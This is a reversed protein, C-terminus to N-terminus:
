WTWLISAKTAYLFGSSFLAQIFSILATGLNSQKRSRKRTSRNWYQAFRPKLGKKILIDKMISFIALMCNRRLKEKDKTTKFSWVITITVWAFARKYLSHDREMRYFMRDARARWFQMLYDGQHLVWLTQWWELLEYLTISRAFLFFHCRMWGYNNSRNHVSLRQLLPCDCCDCLFTNISFTQFQRSQLRYYIQFWRRCHRQSYRGAFEQSRMPRRDRYTWSRNVAIILTARSRYLALLLGKQKSMENFLPSLM